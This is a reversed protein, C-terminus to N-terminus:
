RLALLTGDVIARMVRAAAAAARADVVASRAENLRLSATFVDASGAVGARFRERAQGLEAEALALRAAGAAVLETASEVRLQAARIEFEVQEALEQRRVELASVRAERARERARRNRGDFAPFSVRLAWDYTNLLRGYNKGTIGDAAGLSVTPLREARLAEVDEKAAVIRRDLARVDSRLGLAAGVTEATPAEPPPPDAVEDELRLPTDLPLNAARLLALRTRAAEARATVLQARLASQQAEARTVDLRVGVGSALLEKAVGLLEDSLAVDAERAALRDDAYRAEVWAIAAGAGARARAENTAARDADLAARATRIRQIVSWDFLTQTLHARFDVTTVPGMIQGRPDFFPQQGEPTPFEFGFSATNFTRNGHSAGLSLHPLLASREEAVEAEGAAEELRGAAVSAAREAAARIAGALTLRVTDTAM